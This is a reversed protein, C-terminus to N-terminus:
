TASSVWVYVHDASLCAMDQWATGSTSAPKGAAQTGLMLNDAATARKSWTGLVKGQTIKSGAPLSTSAEEEYIGCEPPGQFANGRVIINGGYNVAVYVGCMRSTEKMMKQWMGSAHAGAMKLAAQQQKVWLSQSQAGSYTFRSALITADTGGKIFISYPDNLQFTCRDVILEAGALM